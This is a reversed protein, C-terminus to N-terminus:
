GAQRQFRRFVFVRGIAGGTQQDLAALSPPLPGRPLAIALLPTQYGAPQAQVVATEFPMPPSPPM